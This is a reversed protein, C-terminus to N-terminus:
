NKLVKFVELNGDTYELRVTYIGPKLHSVEIRMNDPVKIKQSFVLRGSIDYLEIFDIDKLFPSTVVLVDNFPNPYVRTSEKLNIREVDVSGPKSYPAKLLYYKDGDRIAMYCNQSPIDVAISALSHSNTQGGRQFDLDKSQLVSDKIIDIFQLRLYQEERPFLQPKRHVVLVLSDGIRKTSSAYVLNTAESYNHADVIPYSFTDLPEGLVSYIYIPRRWVGDRLYATDPGVYLYNPDASVSSHTKFPITNVLELELDTQCKWILIDTYWESTDKSVLSMVMFSSDSYFAQLNMVALYIISGGSLSNGISDYFAQVSIQKELIGSTISRTVLGEQGWYLFISDNWGIFNYVRFATGMKRWKLGGSLNFMEFSSSDDYQLDYNTARFLLSDAVFYSSSFHNRGPISLNPLDVHNFYNGSTDYSSIHVRNYPQGLFGHQSHSLDILAGGKVALDLNFSGQNPYASGNQHPLRVWQGNCSLSFSAIIYSIIIWHKSLNTAIM